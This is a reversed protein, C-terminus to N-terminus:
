RSNGSLDKIGVGGGGGLKIVSLSKERLHKRLSSRSSANGTPERLMRLHKLALGAQMKIM